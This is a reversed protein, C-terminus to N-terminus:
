TSQRAARRRLVAVLVARGSLLVLGAVCAYAFADGVGAYVTERGETPVSTVLTHDDDTATAPGANVADLQELKELYKVVTSCVTAHSWTLPSVSIPDNTYPNVQEALIGGEPFFAGEECGPWAECGLGSGTLRVLSGTIVIVYLSLM